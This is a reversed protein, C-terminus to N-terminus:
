LFLRFILYFSFFYIFYFLWILHYIFGKLLLLSFFCLLLIKRVFFFFFIFFLYIFFNGYETTIYVFNTLLSTVNSITLLVFFWASSTIFILAFKNKVCALTIGRSKVNQIHFLFTRNVWIWFLEDPWRETVCFHWFCGQCDQSGVTCPM